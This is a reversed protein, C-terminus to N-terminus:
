GNSGVCSETKLQVSGLNPIIIGWRGQCTPRASNRDLLEGHEVADCQVIEGCGAQEEVLLGDGLHHRDDNGVHRVHREREPLLQLREGLGPRNGIRAPEGIRQAVIMALRPEGGLHLVDTLRALVTVFSRAPM